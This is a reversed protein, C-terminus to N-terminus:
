YYIYSTYRYVCVCVCSWHECLVYIFVYINGNTRIYIRRARFGNVGFLFCHASPAAAAAAALPIYNSPTAPIKKM